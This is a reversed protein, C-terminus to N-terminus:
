RGAQPPSQGSLDPMIADVLAGLVLYGFGGMAVTMVLAGCLVLLAQPISGTAVAIFEGPAALISEVLAGILSQM